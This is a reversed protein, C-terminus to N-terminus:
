ILESERAPELYQDLALLNFLSVFKDDILQPHGPRQAKRRMYQKGYFAASPTLLILHLM